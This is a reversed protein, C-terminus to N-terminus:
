LKFTPEKSHGRRSFQFVALLVALAIGAMVVLLGTQRSVGLTEWLDFGM